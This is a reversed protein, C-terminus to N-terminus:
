EIPKMLEFLSADQHDVIPRLERGVHDEFVRVRPSSGPPFLGWHVVVYRAGRRRLVEWAEPAPFTALALGDTYAEAPLHDSYGNVLPQWHWTSALMYETHRHRDVPTVWYPFEAVAGTPMQALREYVEHMPPRTALRLPGVTAAAIAAVALAGIAGRRRAPPIADVTRAIAFAALVSLGLTVMVGFRAPARIMDFFPLTEFFLRYLGADPGFSAWLSLAVLSIYFAVTARPWPTPSRRLTHVVALGAFACALVGPFLVDQWTGIIPLLWRMSITPSALYSRWDASFMRADDLSRAFGAERMGAYPILFPVTLLAAIALAAVAWLWFRTQRWRGTAVGLWLLGWGVVLGAFIGYYGCSLATIALSIGLAVARGARPFAAFRHLALLTLPLGFTMLLQMHPLRGFVFPSFSFLFAGLASAPLHGTLHRMLAFAALASLVFSLLIVANTAALADHTALWVPIALTGAVLNAESYALTSRHPYHINADFLTGPASTLARAVWGINWVVHRHDGSDIRGTSALGAALPWTLVVALLASVLAMAAAPRFGSTM